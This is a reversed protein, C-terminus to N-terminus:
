AANIVAVFMRDLDHAVFGIRQEWLAAVKNQQWLHHLTGSVDVTADTSFKVTIDKRVAFVAHTFDGVIGVVRGAAAAGKLAPLNTSYSIPLYVDNPERQFGDTFVPQAVGLGSGSQRADRLVSKADPNFMAGNPTGGNAEIMAMAASISLAIGDASAQAYETTQTTTRLASDFSTSISTGAQYGLAHADILDAFAGEVDAGILVRPDEVADELLEETYIVTTAIKKVNVVVEAYEAGTVPKAAGEAVFAATPRGAYVAYRQRKGAVRDVRSLSQVASLRQLTNQFTEGYTDRVLYGGSADTGELLPIANPM